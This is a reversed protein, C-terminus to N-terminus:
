SALLRSCMEHWAQVQQFGVPEESFAYGEYEASITGEYGETKLLNMLDAYPISPEIGDDNVHYFKGHIHRTYPLVERWGDVPMHGFMDILMNLPGALFEPLGFRERIEALAAYKDPAPIDSKWIDHIADILAEPAGGKRLDAFYADPVATMTCSFDPVFGLYPSDIRDYFERLEIVHPHSVNLPSHLECAVHVGALEAIRAIKELNNLGGFKQVRIVSFGLKKATVIEREVQTLIEEDGMVRDRQRGVDVNGGLSSPFLGHRDLLDRFHKAFEDSVDPYTRFSQYGVVEIAPGLGLKAVKEIIQDFTYLRQWWEMTFSYLSTGLIIGNIGMKLM